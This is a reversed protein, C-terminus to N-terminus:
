LKVLKYIRTTKQGPNIKLFYLGASLYSFNQEEISKGKWIVEGMSNTLEYDEDADISHILIKGNFPNQVLIAPASSSANMLGTAIIDVCASTDSCIGNSIIVAYSGAQTAVYNQNTQEAIIANGNGCDIWQYTANDQNATITDGNVTTNFDLDCWVIRGYGNAGASAAGGNGNAGGGGGGYEGGPVAPNTVTCFNDTFGAGKGGDGGPLGGSEGGDGGPTLCNSGNWVITNGGNSGDGDAGAAGGGGGGFYTYYGGGGTGGSYNSITGNIGTGGAGGGGIAPNSVSFGNEGGSASILNGVASTGAAAGAGHTGITVEFTEGPTVSYLGQAYGGGGGGGSGNGGGDGGAGVVEINILTVGDPVTFTGSATFEQSGSQSFAISFILLQFLTFFLKM